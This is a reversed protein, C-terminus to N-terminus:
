QVVVKRTILTQGENILNIYYVGALIESFDVQQNDSINNVYQLQKGDVGMISLDYNKAPDKVDLQINTVGNVIPNPFVKFEQVESLDISSSAFSSTTFVYDRFNELCQKAQLHDGHVIVGANVSIDELARTYDADLHIDLVNDVADVNLEIEVPFYNDDGLGHLQISQNLDDGGFGELAVFRYGATWGWHMSPFTPALPHASDYLSPDLHNHDPDVGIHFQIKEVSNIDLNGLEVITNKAADALVWLDEILSVNGGDHTLTIESIYYELRSINFSHDMNNTAAQNMAFDVDDLKHNINLTVTNQASLQLSTAILALAFLLNKKM